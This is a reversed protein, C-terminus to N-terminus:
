EVSKIASELTGYDTNGIIPKAIGKPGQVVITPTSDFSKAQAQQEDAVVQGTLSSSKRDSLWKSYKLGSIDAALGNLFGDNVYSTTEDQQLRYFLLIYNWGLQQQGAALAAAQQPVFMPGNATGSATELSRFVLQVKGSRVDNSILQGEAGSAFDKCIPCELDGFETVTVPAGASGLRNGSQSIGALQASVAAAAQKAAGGTPPPTSSKGGSSIVIAVALVAVVALVVGGVMQLRRQRRTREALAQEQALRRARAEEKQKTRSAM